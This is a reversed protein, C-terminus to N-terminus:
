RTSYFYQGFRNNIFAEFPIQEQKIIGKEPLDGRVHLDLVACLSAATTIQISGWHEGYFEGHYIKRADSVQVYQGNKWGSVTAGILVVDQQTTPIAQELIDKLIERRDGLGLEQILFSMLYRHGKHRITKYGLNRVKGELTDALTGLGGSTNFAEYEVGDLSFYEIEELPMVEVRRGNRIADCPNCYQNILGETSWTLNYMLMNSPYLPLAGVRMKVEELKEFGHCLHYALISIFGPALGCQPVFVQKATANQAIARVASTTALDETVDFYSIGAQLAARAIGPNVWYPCASVVSQQGQLYKVLMAEDSVDLLVTKIPLTAALRDLAEANTDGVCVSYDGSYHLLKAITAGIKGAGLITVSHM